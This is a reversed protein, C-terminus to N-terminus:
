EREKIARIISAVAFCAIALESGSAGQVREAWGLITVIEAALFAWGAITWTTTHDM